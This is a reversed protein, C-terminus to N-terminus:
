PVVHIANSYIWVLDGVEALNVDGVGAMSGFSGLPAALHRPVMRIEARYSGPEAPSFALDQSSSAVVDWGGERARLIRATLSPPTVKPDLRQVRPMTVKLSVGAALSVEEGMEHEAGASTARYDFGAPVGLVEFAGYLRGARLADKLSLDDWKGDADPRVLLHNSFWGMMRRYSDIREGDPLIQPFSNRHCDTGMTTVRRVGRALVTGWTALYIPDESIVPVIVLDPHPLGPDEKKLLSICKVLAGAGLYANAHLNFMEFGDFPLSILQEPTWDETHQALNVSGEKHFADLSAASVKGYIDQREEVTGPVHRELGVPMTGSETGALLLVPDRGACAIRNAVPGGAREILSDGEGPRFLLVDPFASRGFSENHDTAMVFDMQGDCLGKRFESMCGQDLADAGDRPENDCADHSFPSHAHILGRRDLLGRPGAARETAYRLGPSWFPGTDVSAPPGPPPTDSKCALLLLLVGPLLARM